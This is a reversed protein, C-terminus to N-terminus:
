SFKELKRTSADALWTPSTWLESEFSFRSFNDRSASNKRQSFSRSRPSNFRWWISILTRRPSRSLKIFVIEFNSTANVSASNWRIEWCSDDFRRSERFFHRWFYNKRSKLPAFTWKENIKKRWRYFKKIRTFFFSSSRVEIKLAKENVFKRNSELLFRYNTSVISSRFWSSDITLSRCRKRLNILSASGFEETEFKSSFIEVSPFKM